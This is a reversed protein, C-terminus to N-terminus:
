RWICEYALLLHCTSPSWPRISFSRQQTWTGPYKSLGSIYNGSANSTTQTIKRKWLFAQCEIGRLLPTPCRESISRFTNQTTMNPQLWSNWYTVTVSSDYRSQTNLTQPTLLLLVCPLMPLQRDRNHFGAHLATSQTQKCQRISHVATQSSYQIGWWAAKSNSSAYSTTNIFTVTLCM